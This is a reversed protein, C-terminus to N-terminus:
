LPSEFGNILVFLEKLTVFQVGEAQLQPAMTRLVNATAIGGWPGVHGIAIAYGKKRAISVAKRLNKNIENENQTGDLFVDRTLYKVQKTHAAAEVRSKPTTRSDLIILNREKLVDMIQEMIQENKTITSGMHNNLGDAYKLEDLAASVRERVEQPTLETTIPKKGIWAQKGTDSQMPMHLIVGKGVKYFDEADKASSPLNPMVAGTIAIPLQLMETTGKANNGLDDIVVAIYVADGVSSKKVETGTQSAYASDSLLFLFCLVFSVRYNWKSNKM